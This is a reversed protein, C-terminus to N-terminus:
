KVKKPSLVGGSVILKVADDLKMDLIKVEDEPFTAIFGTAPSPTTPIFVVYWKKGHIDLFESAEENTVFGISYIGKRPYEVACVRRFARTEKQLFLINNIQKLSSYISNVMPLRYLIKECQMGLSKFIISGTLYGAGLILFLASIFGLGPIKEGIVSSIIDGLISDAFNFLLLSLWITLFLPLLVALGRFFSKTISGWIRQM